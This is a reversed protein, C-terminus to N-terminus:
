MWTLKFLMAQNDDKIMIEYGKGRAVTLYSVKNDELWRYIESKLQIVKKSGLGHHVVLHEDRLLFVNM